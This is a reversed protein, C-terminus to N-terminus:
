RSCVSAAHVPRDQGLYSGSLKSITLKEKQAEQAVTPLTSVFLALIAIAISKM